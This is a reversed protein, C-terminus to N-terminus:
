IVKKVTDFYNIKKNETKHDQNIHAPQQKKAEAIKALLDSIDDKKHNAAVEFQKTENIFSNEAQTKLLQQQRKSDSLLNELKAAIDSGMDNLFTLDNINMKSSDVLQQMQHTTESSLIKLDSISAEAKVIASDFETVLKAFAGKTNRLLTIKKDLQWCYVICILLMVSIVIDIILM